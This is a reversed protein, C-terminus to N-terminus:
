RAGGGVACTPTHADIEDFLMKRKRGAFVTGKGGGWLGGEWVDGTASEAVPVDGAEASREYSGKQGM